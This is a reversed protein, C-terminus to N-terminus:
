RMRTISRKKLTKRQNKFRAALGMSVTLMGGIAGIKVLTM